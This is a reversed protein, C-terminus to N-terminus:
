ARPSTADVPSMEAPDIDLTRLLSSNKSTDVHDPLNRDVWDATAHLGRSRLTTLMEAKHVHM